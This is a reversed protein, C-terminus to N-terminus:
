AHACSSDTSEIRQGIDVVAPLPEAYAVGFLEVSARAGWKFHGSNGRATLRICFVPQM